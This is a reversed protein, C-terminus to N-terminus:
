GVGDRAYAEVQNIFSHRPLFFAEGGRGLPFALSPPAPTRELLPPSFFLFSFFSATGAGKLERYPDPFIPYIGRGAAGPDWGGLGGGRSFGTSDELSRRMAM